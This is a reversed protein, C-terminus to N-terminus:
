FGFRIKDNQSCTSLHEITKPEKNWFTSHAKKLVMSRLLKSFTSIKLKERKEFRLDLCDLESNIRRM